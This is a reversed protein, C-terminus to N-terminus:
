RGHKIWFRYIIYAAGGVMAVGIIGSILYFIIRQALPAAGNGFSYDLFPAKWIEAMRKLGEPLYGLIKELTKTGWEGWADGAEFLEPLILGFPTLLAMVGLGLWLKKQFSSM